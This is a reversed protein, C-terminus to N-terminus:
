WSGVLQWGVAKDKPRPAWIYPTVAAERNHGSHTLRRAGVAGGDGSRPTMCCHSIRYKKLVSSAADRRGAQLSDSHAGGASEGVGGLDLLHRVAIGLALQGLRALAHRHAVHPPELGVALHEVLAVLLGEGEPQAHPLDDLHTATATNHNYM